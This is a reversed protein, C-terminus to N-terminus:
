TNRRKRCLTGVCPREKKNQKTENNKQVCGLVVFDGIVFVRTYRVIDKLKTITFHIRFTHGHFM